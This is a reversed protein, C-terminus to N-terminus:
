EQRASAAARLHAASQAAARNFQYKATIRFTLGQNVSQFKCEFREPLHLGVIPAPDGNIFYGLGSGSSSGQPVVGSVEILNCISADVRWRVRRPARV